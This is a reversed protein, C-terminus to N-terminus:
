NCTGVVPFPRQVQMLDPMDRWKIWAHHQYHLLPVTVGAWHLASLSPLNELPAAQANQLM